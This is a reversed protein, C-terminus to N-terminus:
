EIDYERKIENELVTLIEEDKITSFIENILDRYLSLVNERKCFSTAFSLIEELDKKSSINEITDKLRSEAKMYRVYKFKKWKNKNRRNM